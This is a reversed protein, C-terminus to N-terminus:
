KIVRDHVVLVEIVAHHGVAELLRQLLEPAEETEVDHQNGRLGGQHVLGPFRHPVHVEDLGLFLEQVLDLHSEDFHLLAALVGLLSILGNYGRNVLSSLPDVVAIGLYVLVTCSSGM